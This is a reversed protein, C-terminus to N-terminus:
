KFRSGQVVLFFRKPKSEKPLGRQIATAANIENLFGAGVWQSMSVSQDQPHCGILGKTMGPSTCDNRSCLHM